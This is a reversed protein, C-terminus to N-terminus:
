AGSVVEFGLARAAIAQQRDHTAFQLEATVRERLVMATALHIADLAKVVTGFPASARALVLRTIPFIAISIEFATLKGHATAVMEDTYDGGLRLRDIARRAEVRALESTMAEDREGWTFAPGPEALIKRLIVSTDLYVIM